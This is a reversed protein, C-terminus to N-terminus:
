MQSKDMDVLCVVLFKSWMSTWLCLIGLRMSKVLCIGEAEAVAKSQMIKSKQQKARALQCLQCLLIPCYAASKIKPTIDCPMTSVAGNPEKVEIVRMLEQIRQMSIGLKWHWQLLEKHASSLNQNAESSINLFAYGSGAHHGFEM